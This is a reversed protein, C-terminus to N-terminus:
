RIRRIWAEIIALIVFACSAMMEWDGASHGKYIAALAAWIALQSFSM